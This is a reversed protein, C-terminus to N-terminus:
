KCAYGRGKRGKERINGRGGKEEGEGEGACWERSPINCVERGKILSRGKKDERMYWERGERRKIKSNREGIASHGVQRWEIRRKGRSKKKKKGETTGEYPPM